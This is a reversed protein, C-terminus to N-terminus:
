STRAFEGHFKHAAAVYAAHAEEATSFQGIQIRKGDVTIKACWRKEVKRWHVGKYGSTNTSRRKGNRANEANTAVRLNAIRNDSPDGNIHDIMGDPLEGFTIFWALRHAMVWKNNLSIKVYGAANAYGCQDGVKRTGTARIATFIGTAPDYSVTRLVEDLPPCNRDRKM